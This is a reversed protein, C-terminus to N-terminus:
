FRRSIYDKIISIFIRKKFKHSNKIIEIRNHKQYTSLGKNAEAVYNELNMLKGIKRNLVSFRYAQPVEGESVIHPCYESDIWVYDYSVSFDDTNLKVVAGYLSPTFTMNFIFNGLSYFIYKSKYVEFGQLVHPHMGVVLDFGIDVLWHAFKLQEVTPYDVYEVGWHIYAIRFDIEKQSIVEDELEKMEPYNWYCPSYGTGDERLSFGTISLKKGDSLFVVSRNSNLGFVKKNAKQLIESMQFYAVDGHEMVHNNALGYIDIPDTIQRYADTNIRFVNRHYDMINTEDSLVGEFNGVWLDNEKKDIFKFPNNGSKIRSGVGFGIDFANDTLNVDGAFYIM